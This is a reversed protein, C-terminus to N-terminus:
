MTSHIMIDKKSHSVVIGNNHIHCMKNKQEDMTPFTPKKWRMTITCLAAILMRVHIINTQTGTNLEPGHEITYKHEYYQTLYMGLVPVTLDYPLKINLKKLLWM